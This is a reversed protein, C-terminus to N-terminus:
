RLANEIREISWGLNVLRAALDFAEDLGVPHSEAYRICFEIMENAPLEAAWCLRRFEGENM